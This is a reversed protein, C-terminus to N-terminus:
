HSSCQWGATRLRPRVVVELGPRQPGPFDAGNGRSQHRFHTFPSSTKAWTTATAFMGPRLAGDGNPASAEVIFRQHQGSRPHSSACPPRSSWNPWSSVSLELM